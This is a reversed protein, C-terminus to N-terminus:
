WPPPSQSGFFLQRAKEYDAPRDMDLDLGDDDRELLRLDAPMSQLFQKLTEHKSHGLNKFAPKPLLVPHRPRGRRGPQCISGSNQEAFEILARLTAPQLHPQDGLVIAWHTLTERWGSWRAACRISSFMGKEPCPNIIRNEGPFGLRNLEAEIGRNSAADVIVIQAAELHTWQAILHGIVTTEGWPLLMKDHGMRTSSGAALIIVGLSFTRRRPPSKM